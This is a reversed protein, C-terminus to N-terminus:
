FYAAAGKNALRDAEENLVHGNHGRVWEFKVRGRRNELLSSIEIILEKNSIDSGKTSKYGNKRWGYIYKTLSDIVYKSDLYLILHCNGPISELLSKLAELEMANNTARSVGGWGFLEKSSFWGWGGPGPNGKSSGDSAVELELTYDFKDWNKNNVISM